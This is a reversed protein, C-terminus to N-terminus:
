PRTYRGSIIKLKNYIQSDTFSTGRLSLLRIIMYSEMYISKINSYFEVVTSWINTYYSCCLKSILSLQLAVSMNM